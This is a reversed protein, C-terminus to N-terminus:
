VKLIEIIRELDKDNYYEIEIKRKNKSKSMTVKTGFKSSLKECISSLEIEYQSPASQKKVKKAEKQLVKSLAEAQRVSLDDEIIKEALLLRKEKTPLSM